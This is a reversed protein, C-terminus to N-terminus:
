ILQTNMELILKNLVLRSWGEFNYEVPTDPTLPVLQLNNIVNNEGVVNQLIEKSVNIVISIGLHVSGVENNHYLLDAECYISSLISEIPLVDSMSLGIEEKIERVCNNTLVVLLSTDDTVEDEVHGGIGVSYLAHLRNEDGSSGRQYILIQYNNNEDQCIFTIYPLLQLYETNTECEPRDLLYSKLHMIYQASNLFLEMTEKTELAYDEKLFVEEKIFKNLIVSVGKRKVALAKKVM